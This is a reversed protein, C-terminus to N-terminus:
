FYRLARLFAQSGGGATRGEGLTARGFEDGRHGFPKAFGAQLRAADSAEYTVAAQLLRSGDGLNAIMSVSQQVLFHWRFSVGMALYDRMRLFVEGRALRERLPEPLSQGVDPLSRVGFGNRHYEAFLYVTTGFARLSYDANLVASVAGGGGRTATWVLDARTLAGRLPVRWGFGLVREDRHRAGMLEFEAKGAIGHFKAAISSASWAARGGSRRGVALVQLDAGNEFLREILVLDDGPKYDQDVSTPAFPSLLDMPQFVLGAGWSVAQRGLTVRWGPTRYAVALRDFGHLLRASGSEAVQWRLNLLRNGDAGPTQEFVFGADSGLRPSDGGIGTTFHHVVVRLRGSDRQWMLRLDVNHDLLAADGSAHRLADGDPLSLAATFWKGRVKFVNTSPNAFVPWAGVAFALVTLVGRWACATM